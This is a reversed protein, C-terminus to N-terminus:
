EDLAARIVEFHSVRPEPDVLCELDFSFYRATEIEPGAYAEIAERSDWFSILEFRVLEGESRRLLVFGRNGPTRAYDAVGRDSEALYHAYAEAKDARVTGQWIRAIM